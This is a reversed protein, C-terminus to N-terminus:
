CGESPELADFCDAWRWMRALVRRSTCTIDGVGGKRPRGLRWGVKVVRESVGEREGMPIFLNVENEVGSAVVFYEGKREAPRLGGVRKLSGM